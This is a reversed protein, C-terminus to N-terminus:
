RKVGHVAITTALCSPLRASIPRHFSLPLYLQRGSITECGRRTLHRALEKYSFLRHAPGRDPFFRTLFQRLLSHRNHTSLIVWGGPRIVRLVEDLVQDPDSVIQLVEILLAGSFTADAFPIRYAPARVAILGNKAAALAMEGSGDLGIVENTPCLPATFLGPGCGVDIILQNQQGNLWRNLALQRYDFSKRDPYDSATPDEHSRESSLRDFTEQWWRDDADFGDETAPWLDWVGCKEQFLRECNPCCLEPATEANAPSEPSDTNKREILLCRCDPCCANRPPQASRTM